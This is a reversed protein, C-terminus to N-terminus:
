QGKIEDLYYDQYEEIDAEVSLISGLIDGQTPPEELVGGDQAVFITYEIDGESNEFGIALKDNDTSLVLVDSM